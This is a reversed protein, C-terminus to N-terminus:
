EDNFKILKTMHKVQGDKPDKINIFWLARDTLRKNTNRSVIAIAVHNKRLDQIIRVIDPSVGCKRDKINLAVSAMEMERYEELIIHLFM